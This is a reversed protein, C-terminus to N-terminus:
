SKMERQLTFKFSPAVAASPVESAIIEDMYVTGAPIAMASLSALEGTFSAGEFDLTQSGSNKSESAWVKEFREASRGRKGRSTPFERPDFTINPIDIPLTGIVQEVIVLNSQDLLALDIGVDTDVEVNPEPDPPPPPPVPFFWKTNGLSDFCGVTCAIDDVVIANSDKVDLNAVTLSLKPFINWASGDSSSRLALRDSASLGQLNLAGNITQTKGQEFVLRSGAGSAIKTLHNFVSTGLIRQDLGDLVLGGTAVYTGQNSWDGAVTIVKGNDTLKSTSGITMNGNLDLNADATWRGSSSLSLNYYDNGAALRSYTGTGVYDWTGSDTDNGSSLTVIEDGRLRITATNNVPGTVTLARGNLSFTGRDVQLTGAIVATAGLQVIDNADTMSIALNFYDTAGFDKLSFTDAVGDGDGTYAWTGSNLDNGATLSVTENGRFRITAENSFAGRATLANGNLSLIGSNINLAGIVTNAAGMQIVDNADTMSIALNFYDTAGFDRLSFTDAVGDGDGVYAWTGSNTDNATLTVVENGRLRVTGDNVLTGTASVDNGNLYLTGSNVNLTGGMITASGLQVVDNSDTMTIRLNFYDTAGFDKLSFTDAVGDGDGTYQWTGSDIDNGSALTVTESGRLRLTANNTFANAVNLDNGNLDFTGTTVSLAGVISQGASLQLVDSSDTMNIVLNFYDTSGFDKLSFTDAVGDGDGTYQWIGSDIDNGSALAVAESGRLRFTGNNTFSGAVNLDNGNLNFIGSDVNLSAVISTGAGLRVIDNSDTTNIKLNFYDTVGFDKLTYTDAAGDGDGVYQWTGSDIDNGSTLTVTESGRLRITTENQLRGTVTLSQGNLNLIGSNLRLEGAIIKAAGLQMIDTSEALNIHLNFYDTTGFEKLTFIDAIGDNDGTYHVLGSDNDLGTVRTLTESGRLRFTGDNIVARNAIFELNNGELSFINDAQISLATMRVSSGLTRTVGSGGIVVSGLDQKTANQDNLIGSGDLTLIRGGTAKRFTSTAALNFTNAVNLSSSGQTLTSGALLSLDGNVDITGGTGATLAGATTLHNTTLTTAGTSLTVGSSITTTGSATINNNATFTPISTLRSRNFTLSGVDVIDRLVSNQSASLTLNFSNGDISSGANMTILGTGSADSDALFITNGTLSLIAGANVIINAVDSITGSYNGTSLNVAGDLNDISSRAVQYTGGIDFAAGEESLSQAKLTGRSIINGSSVLAIHGEQGNVALDAQIIGDLNITSSFLDPLSAASLIIVGGNAEIVGSNKIQDTISHGERDYIASAAKEEIAVAILGGESLDLRVADGSALAIKGLPAIISGTNEIGGAILVGFGGDTLTITGANLLLRDFADPNSKEFLYKAELFDQNSIQRTSLILNNAQIRAQPGIYIGNPNILIFLGNSILHGLLDTAGSGTVRNLIRSEASPLNVILSEHPSLNFSSYNLITNDTALITMTNQDVHIEASGSIVEPGQPLAFVPGPFFVLLVLM